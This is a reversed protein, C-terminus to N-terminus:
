ANKNIIETEINNKVDKKSFFKRYIVFGFYGMLIILTIVLINRGFVYSKPKYEFIISNVPKDLYLATIVGDANLLEFSNGDAKATWGPFMSFKESLVLTGQYRGDLRLEYKDLNHTIYNEDQVQTLTGNFLSWMINVDENTVANKGSIIDPLLIGNSDMYSKLLFMSGQDISGETLFIASYKKLEDLTYDNIREKGRVIVTNYPKFKEDLMLAYLINTQLEKRGVVLISNKVFYARPLFEENEYLYPGFAKQIDKSHYCDECKEFKNVFKFGSINLETTSTLYKMNLIGWFKAPERNAISLYVNMYDPQWATLYGYINSIKLPLYAFQTGWDIGFSEFDHYRFLGPMKSMNQAVYNRAINYNIDSTDWYVQSFSFVYLNLLLMIVIVAVAIPKIGGKIKRTDLKDLISSVGFGALVSMAFMFVIGARYYHRFAQFIPINKWIVHYYFPGNIILVILVSTLVLSIVVKSKRNKYIGYIALLFAIIGIHREEGQDGGKFLSRPQIFGKIVDSLKAYEGKVMEPTMHVKNTSELYEVTPLMKQLNLGITISGLILGILLIKIVRRLLGKGLMHMIFLLAICFAFWSAVKLDPGNRVMLGYLIGSIVSYFVWEKSKLAKVLMLFLIPMFLYANLTTTGPGLMVVRVFGNIMFIIGAIAGAEHKKTLHFVLWYMFIGALMVSFLWSLNMAASVSPAILVLIGSLSDIGISVPDAHYPVGSMVYPNWLPFFDHYDAISQKFLSTLPFYYTVPDLMPLNGLKLNNSYVILCVLILLSIYITHKIVQKKKLQEHEDM